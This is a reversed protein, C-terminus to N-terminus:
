WTATWTGTNGSTDVFIFSQPYTWLVTGEYSDIGNVLLDWDEASYGWVAFNGEGSFGFTIKSLSDADIYLVQSGTYEQGNVLEDMASMPKFTVTWGVDSEISLQSSCSDPEDYLYEQVNTVTGQYPTEDDYSSIYLVYDQAGNEDLTEAFFDGASDCTVTMIFPIDTVPIDIVDDGSGTVTTEEFTGYSELLYQISSPDSTETEEGSTGDDTTSDDEKTASEGDESSTSGDDDEGYIADEEEVTETQAAEDTSSGNGGIILVLCVIVAIVAVIAVIVIIAIKKGNGGGDPNGSGGAGQGPAGTTAAESPWNARGQGSSQTRAAESPWGAQNQGQVQGRAVESPWGTQAGQGSAQGAGAMQQPQGTPRGQGYGPGQQGRNADVPKTSPQTQQQGQNGGSPEAQPDRGPRNEQPSHQSSQAQRGAQADDPVQQPRAAHQIPQADVGPAQPGPQAAGSAHQGNETTVADRGDAQQVTQSERAPQEGAAPYGCSICFRSGAPIASGCRPCTTSAADTETIGQMSHGCETCFKLGPAVERGCGPCIRTGM